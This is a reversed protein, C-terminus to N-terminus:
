RVYDKIGLDEGDYAFLLKPEPIISYASIRVVSYETPYKEVYGHRGSECSVYEIRVIHVDPRLFRIFGVLPTNEHSVDHINTNTFAGLSLAVIRADAIQVSYKQANLRDCEKLAAQCFYDDSMGNKTYDYEVFQTSRLVGSIKRATIHFLVGRFTNGFRYLNINELIEQDIHQPLTGVNGVDIKRDRNQAIPKKRLRNLAMLTPLGFM